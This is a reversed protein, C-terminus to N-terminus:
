EGRARVVPVHEALHQRLAGPDAGEGLDERVVLRLLEAEGEGASPPQERSRQRSLATMGGEHGYIRSLPRRLPHPRPQIPEHTTGLGGGTSGRSTTSERKGASSGATPWQSDSDGGRLRGAPAWTVRKAGDGVPYTCM